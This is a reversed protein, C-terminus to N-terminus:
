TFVGAVLSLAHGACGSWAPEIGTHALEVAFGGGFGLSLVTRCIPGIGGISAAGDIRVGGLLPQLDLKHYLVRGNESHGPPSPDGMPAADAVPRFGDACLIWEEEARLSRNGRRACWVKSCAQLFLADIWCPGNLTM